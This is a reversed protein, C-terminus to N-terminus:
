PLESSTIYHNSHFTKFISNYSTTISSKWKRLIILLAHEQRCEWGCAAAWDSSASTFCNYWASTKSFSFSFCFSSSLWVDRTLTHENITMSNQAHPHKSLCHAARLYGKEKRRKGKASPVLQQKHHLWELQSDILLQLHTKMPVHTCTNTPQHAFINRCSHTYSPTRM